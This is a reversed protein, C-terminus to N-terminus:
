VTITKVEFCDLRWTASVATPDTTVLGLGVIDGSPLSGSIATGVSLSSGPVFNLTKWKGSTTMDLLSVKQEPSTSGATMAFAEDYVYWTTGVKVAAQTKGDSSSHRQYWSIEYLQKGSRSITYQETFLFQIAKSGGAFIFGYKTDTTYITNVPTTLGAGASYSLCTNSLSANAHIYNNWAIDACSANVGSTNPFIERLAVEVVGATGGGGSNALRFLDDNTGSGAFDTSSFAFTPLYELKIKGTVPDLLDEVTM